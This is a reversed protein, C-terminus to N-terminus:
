YENDTNDLEDPYLASSAEGPLAAYPPRSRTPKSYIATIKDQIKSAAEEMRKRIAPTLLSGRISQMLGGREKIFGWKGSNDQEFLDKYMPDSAVDATARATIADEAELSSLREAPSAEKGALRAKAAATRLGLGADARANRARDQNQTETFRREALDQTANFRSETDTRTQAQGRRTDNRYAELARRAEERDAENLGFESLRLKSNRQQQELRAAEELGTNAEKWDKRAEEEPADLIAKGARFGELPGRRSGELFGTAAGAIKRGLSPEYDAKKPYAEVSRKLAISAPGEEGLLNKIQDSYMTVDNNRSRYPQVLGGAISPSGTNTSPASGTAERLTPDNDLIRRRRLLEADLPDLGDSGDSGDDLYSSYGGM